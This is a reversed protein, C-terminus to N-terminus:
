RSPATATLNNLENRVIELAQQPPGIRRYHTIDTREHVSFPFLFKRGEVDYTFLVPLWIGPEVEEQEIVVHGGHYVRGAVGGGFTIDTEIDAELRVFQVTAEDVWLTAHMHQFSAAFRSVPKFDPNPDLFFKMLTRQTHAGTSGARTERGAWTIRFAKAAEDVLESRDHRRKEYKAQGEKYRADPNLAQGLATVAFQLEQRYTEPSVPAGNEATKLKINGAPSSIIRQTIDTSIEANEGKRSITHEIREFQELAQDNRHQNAIARVTLARIQEPSPPPNGTVVPGQNGGQGNAQARAAAPALWAGQALCVGLAVITKWYAM